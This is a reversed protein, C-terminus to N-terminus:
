NIIIFSFVVCGILGILWPILFLLLHTKNKRLLAVATIMVMIWLFIIAFGVPVFFMDEDYDKSGPSSDPFACVFGLLALYSGVTGQLLGLFSIGIRKLIKKM